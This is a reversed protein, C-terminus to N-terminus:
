DSPTVILEKFHAVDWLYYVTLHGRTQEYRKSKAYKFMAWRVGQHTKGSIKMLDKVTYEGDPLDLLWQAPPRGMKSM